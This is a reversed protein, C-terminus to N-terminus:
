QVEELAVSRILEAFPDLGDSGEPAYVKKFGVRRAEAATTPGIVVAKADTGVKAAWHQIASPSAFTAVEITKALQAMAPTWHKAAVTTYTELRTVTVGREALVESIEHSALQSCPYLAKRGLSLPLEKALAEGTSQSPEFVPNIGFHKLAKTTGQGISVVKVGPPSGINKWAEDFVAAAHPSTIVAYDHELIVDALEGAGDIPITTICPIEFCNLGSLRELLAHNHGEERTVAVRM